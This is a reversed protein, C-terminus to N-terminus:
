NQSAAKAAAMVENAALPRPDLSIDSLFRNIPATVGHADALDAVAGEIWVTELPKGRQLSQWTSGGQRPQGGVEDLQVQECRKFLEKVPVFDLKASELVRQGEARAAKAVSRWDDTIMAQAANGLNTLWKARKWRAIDSRAVSDFGATRMVECFASTLELDADGVAPGVDVVGRCGESYLVVSGPQLHTTPLWLMISLVTSFRECAWTEGHVGNSASAVPVQSGVHELIQDMVEQADNLKTAVMAVDGDRWSVDEIREFCPVEVSFERKPTQLRLGESRIRQGHEGRAVVVVPFGAHQVLGGISGGIAGAGIIVLRKFM